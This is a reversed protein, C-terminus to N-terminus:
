YQSLIGATSQLTGSGKVTNITGWLMTSINDSYGRCYKHYGEVTSITDRQLVLTRQLVSLARDADYQVICLIQVICLVASYLVACVNRLTIYSIPIEKATLPQANVHGRM